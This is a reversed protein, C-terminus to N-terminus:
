ERKRNREAWEWLIQIVLSNLSVGLRKSSEDLRVKLEKTIRLTFRITDNTM